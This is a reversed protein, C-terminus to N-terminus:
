ASHRSAPVPACPHEMWHARLRSPLGWVVTLTFSGVLALLIGNVGLWSSLAFELPVTILAQAPVWRLLVGVRGISQLAMAYTDTWIRCCTYLGFLAFTSAHPIQKIGPALWRLLHPAAIGLVLTIALMVTVGALIYRRIHHAMVHWDRRVGLESFLPWTAGLLGSYLTIGVWFFRNIVNYAGIDAPQLTRSMVIYDVNLVAASMLAFAWFRSAPRLLQRAAARFEGPLPRAHRVLLVAASLLGLACLPVTYALLCALLRHSPSVRSAWAWLLVLFALPPLSLLINAVVGRGLAYLVRQCSQWLTNGLFLTGVCLVLTAPSSAGGLHFKGLLFDALRPSLMWLVGGGALLVVSGAALLVAIVGDVRRHEVRSQSIANQVSSGLGFDALQFWAMLSVLVSYAAFDVEGLSSTLLPLSVLQAGLSIARASWNSMAVLLHSPLRALLSAIVTPRQTPSSEATLKTTM